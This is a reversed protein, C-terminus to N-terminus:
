VDLQGQLAGPAQLHQLGSCGDRSAIDSTRQFLEPPHAPLPLINEQEKNIKENRQRPRDEAVGETATKRQRCGVEKGRSGGRGSM